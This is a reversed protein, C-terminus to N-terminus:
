GPRVCAAIACADMRGVSQCEDGGAMFWQQISELRGKCVGGEKVVELCPVGRTRGPPGRRSPLTGRDVQRRPRPLDRLTAYGFPASLYTVEPVQPPVPLVLGDGVGGQCVDEAYAREAAM